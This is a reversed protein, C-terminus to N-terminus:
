KCNGNWLYTQKGMPEVCSRRHEAEARPQGVRLECVGDQRWVHPKVGMHQPTVDSGASVSGMDRRHHHSHLNAHAVRALPLALFHHQRQQFRGVRSECTLWDYQPISYGSALSIM